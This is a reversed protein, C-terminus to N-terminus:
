AMIINYNADSGIIMDSDDHTTTKLGDHNNMTISSCHGRFPCMSVIVNWFPIQGVGGDHHTIIYCLWQISMTFEVINYWVKGLERICVKHLDIASFGVAKTSWLASFHPSKCLHWLTLVFFFQLEHQSNAEHWRRYPQVGDMQRLAQCPCCTGPYGVPWVWLYVIHTLHSSDHTGM